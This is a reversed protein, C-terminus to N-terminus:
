VQQSFVVARVFEKSLSLMKHAKANKQSASKNQLLTIELLSQYSYISKDKALEVIRENIKDKPTEYVVDFTDQLIRDTIEKKIDSSLPFRLVQGITDDSKFVELCDDIIDAHEGTDKIFLLSAFIEIKWFPPLKESIEATSRAPRHTLLLHESIELCIKEDVEVKSSYIDCLKHIISEHKDIGFKKDVIPNEPTIKKYLDQSHKSETLSFGLKKGKESLARLLKEYGDHEFLNVWQFRKSIKFPIECNDLRVPVLFIDGEPHHKAYDLAIEIEKQVYGTQSVSNESFLTLVIHSDKIEKEIELEWDNGGILRENDMWVDIGDGKLKDHLEQAKPKDYKSHCIFVRLRKVLLEYNNYYWLCEQIMDYVTKELSFSTKVQLYLKPFESTLTFCYFEPKEEITWQRLLFQEKNRNMVANELRYPIDTRRKFPFPIPTFIKLNQSPLSEIYFVQQFRKLRDLQVFLVVSDEEFQAIDAEYGGNRLLLSTERIKDFISKEM